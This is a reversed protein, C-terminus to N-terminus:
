VENITSPIDDVILVIQTTDIDQENTEVIEPVNKCYLCMYDIIFNNFYYIILIFLISILLSALGLNLLQQKQSMINLLPKVNQIIQTQYMNRIYKLKITWVNFPKDM